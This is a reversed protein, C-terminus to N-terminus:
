ETMFIGKVIPLLWKRSDDSLRYCGIETMAAAPSVWGQKLMIILESIQTKKNTRELEDVAQDFLVDFTTEPYIM